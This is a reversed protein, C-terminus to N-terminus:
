PGDASDFGPRFCAEPARYWATSVPRELIISTASAALGFDAVVCGGGDEKMLVNGMSLDRHAVDNAHLHAIGQLIDRSYRWAASWDLFGQARSYVDALSLICYEFVLSLDSGSKSVFADLLDLVNPHKPVCQFFMMERKATESDRRQVKIAVLREDGTDWAPCVQGYSGRGLSAAAEKGGVLLYREGKASSGLDM